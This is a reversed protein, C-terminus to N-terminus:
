HFEFVDDLTEGDEMQQLEIFGQVPDALTNEHFHMSGAVIMCAEGECPSVATDPKVYIRKM